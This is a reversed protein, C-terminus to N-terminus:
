IDSQNGKNEQTSELMTTKQKLHNPGVQMYNDPFTIAGWELIRAQFIGRVPSGPPSCDMPDCPTPCSQTAESEGKVKM